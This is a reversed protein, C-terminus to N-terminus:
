SSPATSRTRDSSSAISLRNPLVGAVQVRSYSTGAVIVLPTAGRGVVEQAISRSRMVHGMGTTPGSRARFLVTRSM